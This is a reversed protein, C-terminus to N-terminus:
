VQMSQKATELYMNAREANGTTLITLYATMYVVATYCRESIDIGGFEDVEPYPLYVARRITADEDKCSYFELVRGEPRMVIACVPKQYNGRIGKYRSKQLSYEPDTESLVDFVPREWDSMEFVVLRMFDDPLLIHGSCDKDWYLEDNMNHGTELLFYAAGQHVLRVAECIKSEIIEDLTLTEIDREALLPSNQRNEDIAVRVDRAIKKINYIM